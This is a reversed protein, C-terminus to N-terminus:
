ASQVGFQVFDIHRSRLAHVSSIVAAASVNAIRGYSNFVECGKRVGRAGSYYMRFM